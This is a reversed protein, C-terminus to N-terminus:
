LLIEKAKKLAFLLREVDEENNYISFSARITGPVQLRAMLPQTCHHGARVAVGQQDLIQGVDSHHAGLLQMSLIPGKSVDKAFIRFGDIKSVQKTAIELLRNEHLEIKDWGIGEFFEIATALAVAGEVNPTGAEFRFPVDNFSVGSTTVQHIMSGGGQYPPMKELLSKKGYLAGIGFPAFLKHGSFCLFDVGLSQVDIKRQSVLQAADCIVIAGVQHGLKALRAVDNNTGLTNSCATFSFVRPNKKLGASLSDEDLEGRENVKVFEIKLNKRAALMQWPVINAHHEMETLLILDGEHLVLEPATSEGLSFAVLNLAETTGRTFIIEDSNAASLFRAVQKRASEYLATAHDSLSHAGRHVNATEFSNFKSIRDIVAIPKLSTAATDLYVLNQGHFKLTLAPFQARIEAFSFESM